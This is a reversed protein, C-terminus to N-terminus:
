SKDNKAKSSGKDKLKDNERQKMMKDIGQMIARGVVDDTVRKKCKSCKYNKKTKYWAVNCCSTLKLDDGVILYKDFEERNFETNKNVRKKIM